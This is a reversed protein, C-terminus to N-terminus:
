KIIPNKKLFTNSLFESIIRHQYKEFLFVFNPSLHVLLKRCDNGEFQGGHYESKKVHCGHLWEGSAPWVKSM